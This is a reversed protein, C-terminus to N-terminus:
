GNIKFAYIMGLASSVSKEHIAFNSKKLQNIISKPSRQHWEVLIIQFQNILQSEFLNQIIEFEGGECDIKLIKTEDKHKQILPELCETANVIDVEVVQNKDGSSEINHSKIVGVSGKFEPNYNFNVKKTDRGLGFNFITTKSKADNNLGINIKADDFTELVPEFSYIANVEVKRAFYISTIGVNLGIDFFVSNSPLTLNYCDEYFVENLIYYEEDTKINFEFGDLRVLDVGAVKKDIVFDIHKKKLNRHYMPVKSSKVNEFKDNGIRRIELGLSKLINKVKKKIM